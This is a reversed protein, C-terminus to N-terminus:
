VARQEACDHDSHEYHDRESLGKIRCRRACLLLSAWSMQGPRLSTLLEFAAAAYEQRHSPAVCEPPSASASLAIRNEHQDM